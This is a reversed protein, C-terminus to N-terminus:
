ACWRSGKKIGMRCHETISVAICRSPFPLKRNGKGWGKGRKEEGMKKRGLCDTSFVFATTQFFSPRRKRFRLAEKESVIGKTKAPCQSCAQFASGRLCL